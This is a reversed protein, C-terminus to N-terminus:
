PELKILRKDKPPTGQKIIELQAIIAELTKQKFTLTIPNEMCKVRIVVFGKSILLGNKENDAKIVQQLREDGWIPEFHSPGDIEIATSYKPLFLDIELKYNPLINKKHIEIIYGAKELKTRIYKELSSGEKSARRLGEFAKEQMNKKEADSKNEWLEKRHEVLENYKKEDMKEWGEHIKQGMKIRTEESHSKGETPHKRRGSKLALKQSDSRSRVVMIKKLFRRIKNPYTKLEDAIEYCSKGADYLEIIKKENLKKKAM